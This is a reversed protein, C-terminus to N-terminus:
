SSSTIPGRRQRADFPNSAWNSIREHYSRSSQLRVGSRLTTVYEGHCAPELEKIQRVNVILSRHIRLVMEPDMSAELTSIPVHLLHRSAATHLQVYNEAAQIWHVDELSVFSTKGASRIALRQLYRPPATLTELLSIVQRHAEDPSTLRVRARHLTQAFRDRTVPKLLYDIANIEFAQLAYQDHATVFVVAPM